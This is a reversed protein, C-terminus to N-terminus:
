IIDNEGKALKAFENLKESQRKLEKEVDDLFQHFLHFMRKREIREQWPESIFKEVIFFVGILLIFLWNGFEYNVKIVDLLLHLLIAIILAIGFSTLIIIYKKKKTAKFDPRVVIIPANMLEAFKKEKEFHEDVEKEVNIKWERLEKKKAEVKALIDKYRADTEPLKNLEPEISVIEAEKKKTEEALKKLHEPDRVFLQQVLASFTAIQKNNAEMSANIEFRAILEDIEKESEKSNFSKLDLYKQRLRRV